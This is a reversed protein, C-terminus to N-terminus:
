DPPLPASVAAPSMTGQPATQRTWWFTGGAVVAVLIITTVLRSFPTTGDDPLPVPDTEVATADTLTGRGGRGDVRRRNRDGSQGIWPLSEV